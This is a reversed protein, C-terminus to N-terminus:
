FRMKIFFLYYFIVPLGIVVSLIALATRANNEGRFIFLLFKFALIGLLGGLCNLIIDDIDATGIGFLGQVIEVLLSVMFVLLLNTWVRKDKRLTPLYIGLPIFILINGVVNGYAFRKANDSGGSLFDTITHFPILNFSRTITRQSNFLDSLSVRSLLLIKCLLILYGIFVAFIVITKIRERKNM